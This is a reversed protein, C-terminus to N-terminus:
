KLQLVRHQFVTGEKLEIYETLRQISFDIELKNIHGQVPHM